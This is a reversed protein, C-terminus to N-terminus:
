ADITVTADGRDNQYWVRKKFRLKAKELEPDMGYFKSEEKSPVPRRGMFREKARELDTDATRGLRQLRAKWHCPSEEKIEDCSVQGLAACESQAHQQLGACEKAAQVKARYLEVRKKLLDQIHEKDASLVGTLESGEYCPICENCESCETEEEAVSPCQSTQTDIAECALKCMASKEIECKNRSQAYQNVQRSLAVNSDMVASLKDKMAVLCQEKLPNALPSHPPLLALQHCPGLPKDKTVIPNRLMDQIMQNASNLTIDLTGSGFPAALVGDDDCEDCRCPELRRYCLACGKSPKHCRACQMMIIRESGCECKLNDPKKKSREARGVASGATPGSEKNSVADAMMVQPQESSIEAGYVQQDGHSEALGHQETLAQQRQQKESEEQREEEKEM